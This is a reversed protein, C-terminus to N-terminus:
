VTSEHGGHGSLSNRCIQQFKNGSLMKKFPDCIQSYFDVRIILQNNFFRCLIFGYSEEVHWAYFYLLIKVSSNNM